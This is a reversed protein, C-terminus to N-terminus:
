DATRRRGRGPMVPEALAREVSWGRRIRWSTVKSPIGTIEAWEALTRTEGGCTATAMERRNRQQGSKTTWRCNDPTYPGNVDRRDITTGQPREGMDALFTEFSNVWAAHVTIGRGGYAAYGAANPNLCRQKMSEWSKFTPTGTMGHTTVARRHREGASQSRGSRLTNARVPREVGSSDRCLWYVEGRSNKHSPGIVTWDGFTQGTLDLKHPRKRM